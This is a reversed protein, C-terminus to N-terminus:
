SQAEVAVDGLHDDLKKCLQAERVAAPFVVVKSDKSIVTFVNPGCDARVAKVTDDVLTRLRQTWAAALRELVRPDAALDTLFRRTISDIRSVLQAEVTGAYAHSAKRDKELDRATVAYVDRAYGRMLYRVQDATKVLHVLVDRVDIEAEGFARVPLPYTDTVIDDIVASMNGFTVLMSVITVRYNTPLKELRGGLARLVIPPQSDDRHDGLALLQPIGRWGITHPLHKRPYWHGQPVNSK